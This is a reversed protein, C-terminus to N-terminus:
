AFSFLRRRCVFAGGDCTMESAMCLCQLSEHPMARHLIDLAM